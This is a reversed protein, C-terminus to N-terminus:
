QREFPVPVMDGMSIAMDAEIQYRHCYDSPEGEDMPRFGGIEDDTSYLYEIALRETPNEVGYNTSLEVDDEEGVKLIRLFTGQGNPDYYYKGPEARRDQTEVFHQNDLWIHRPNSYVMLFDPTQDRETLSDRPCALIQPM